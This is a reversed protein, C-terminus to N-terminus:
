VTQSVVPSPLISNITSTIDGLTQHCDRNLMIDIHRSTRTDIKPPRGSRAADMHHGREKAYWITRQITSISCNFFASLESHTYGQEHKECILARIAPDTNPQDKKQPM